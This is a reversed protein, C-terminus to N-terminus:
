AEPQRLGLPPWLHVAIQSDPGASGERPTRSLDLDWTPPRRGLGFSQRLARCNLASSYTRSRRGNTTCSGGLDAAQHRGCRLVLHAVSSALDAASRTAPLSERSRKRHSYIAPEM